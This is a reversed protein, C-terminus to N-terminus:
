TRGLTSQNIIERDARSQDALVREVARLASAPFTDSNRRSGGREVAQAIQEHDEAMKTFGNKRLSKARAQHWEASEESPKEPKTSMPQGGSFTARSGASRPSFHEPNASPAM